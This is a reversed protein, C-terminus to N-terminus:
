MAVQQHEELVVVVTLEEQGVSVALYRLELLQQAVLLELPEKTVAVAVAVAVL